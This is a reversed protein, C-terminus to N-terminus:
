EQYLQDGLLRLQLAQIDLIDVRESELSDQFDVIVV